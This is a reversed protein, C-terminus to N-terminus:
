VTRYLGRITAGTTRQGAYNDGEAIGEDVEDLAMQTAEDITLPIDSMITWPTRIVGGINQDFVHVDVGYAYRGPRGAKWASFHEDGPVVGGPLSTVHPNNALAQRVSDYGARFAQNGMRGGAARFAELAKRGSMGQRAFDGMFGAPNGLSSGKAM